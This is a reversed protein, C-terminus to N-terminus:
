RTKEWELISGCVREIDEETITLASPLWLSRYSVNMSGPFDNGQDRYPVQTHLPHWFKRSHMNREKLYQELSDRGEVSVDIWQPCEGDDISFPCVSVAASSHLGEAYLRYTQRMKRLRADIDRMQAIGMAAQLNTLKFNFGLSRHEDDGGTGRIPRGQDKLEVLRKYLDERDTIVMGGQGTTILKMPSFSFCGTDGFTGYKKGGRASGLAEAADEVVALQHQRAFSLIADMDVGHGTVHVPIIAKTRKTLKAALGAPDLLSDSGVDVLVPTAGALRVANATAIFTLDPVLVEDGSGIGLAMLSITLASTCNSTAVAYKSGCFDAVMREFETTREGDNIHGSEIVRVIENKEEGTFVPTWWPIPPNAKM